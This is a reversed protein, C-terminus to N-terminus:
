NRPPWFCSGAIGYARAEEETEFLIRSTKWECSLGDNLVKVNVSWGGGPREGWVRTIVAPAVDAGNNVEVDAGCMVMRCVSPVRVAPAAPRPAAPQASKRAAKAPKSASPSEQESAPM